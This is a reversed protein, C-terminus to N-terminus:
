KENENENEDLEDLENFNLDEDEDDSEDIDDLLGDYKDRFKGPEVTKIADNTVVIRDYVNKLKEIYKKTDKLISTM